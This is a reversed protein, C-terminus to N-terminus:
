EDISNPSTNYYQQMVSLETQSYDLALDHQATLPFQLHDCSPSHRQHEAWPSDFSQWMKLSKLCCYCTVTDGLGQYYFGAAAFSQPPIPISPPWNYFTALRTEFNSLPSSSSNNQSENIILLITGDPTLNVANQLANILCTARNTFCKTSKKLVYHQYSDLQFRIYEWTFFM